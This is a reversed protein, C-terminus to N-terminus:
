GPYPNKDSFGSSAAAQVFAPIVNTLGLAWTRPSPPLLDGAPAAARWAPRGTRVEDAGDADTSSSTDAAACMCNGNNTLATAPPPPRPIRRTLSGAASGSAM